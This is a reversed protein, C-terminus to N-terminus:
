KKEARAKANRQIKMWKERVALVAAESHPDRPGPWQGRARMIELMAMCEAIAQKPKAGDARLLRLQQERVAAFNPHKTVSV